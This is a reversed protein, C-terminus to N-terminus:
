HAPRVPVAGIQARRLTNITSTASALAVRLASGQVAWVLPGQRASSSKAPGTAAQAPPAHAALAALRLLAGQQSCDRRVHKAVRRVSTRTSTTQAARFVSPGLAPTNVPLALSWRARATARHARSACNAAAVPRRHAVRRQRASLACDVTQLVLSRTSTTRAAHSARHRAEQATSARHARLLPVAETVGRGRLVRQARRCCRPGWRARHRVAVWVRRATRHARRPTARRTAATQAGRWVPPVTSARRVFPRFAPEMAVRGQRASPVSKANIKRAAM